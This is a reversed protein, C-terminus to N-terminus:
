DNSGSKSLQSISSAWITKSISTMDRLSAGADQKHVKIVTSDIQIWEMDADQILTRFITDIIGADLWRYYRCKVTQYQGYREPIDRWRAGSRALWLLANIFTRGNSRPGGRRGKRGGPVFPEIVAWQDDRLEQQDM